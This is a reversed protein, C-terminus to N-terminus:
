YPHDAQYDETPDERKGRGELRTREQMLFELEQRLIVVDEFRTQEILRSAEQENYNRESEIEQLAGVDPSSVKEALTRLQQSLEVERTRFNLPPAQNRVQSIFEELRKLYEESQVIQQRLRPMDGALERTSSTQSIATLDKRLLSNEREAINLSSETEEQSSDIQDITVRLSDLDATFLSLTEESEVKISSFHLNGSDDYYIVSCEQGLDLLERPVSVAAVFEGGSNSDENETKGPLSRVIKGAFVSLNQKIPLLYVAGSPTFDLRQSQVLFAQDPEAALSCSTHFVAILLLSLLFIAKRSKLLPIGCFM